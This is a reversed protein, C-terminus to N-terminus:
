GEELAQDVELNSKYKYAVKLKKIYGPGLTYTYGIAVDRGYYDVPHSAEVLTFRYVYDSIAIDRDSGKYIVIDGESDLYYENIVLDEIHM